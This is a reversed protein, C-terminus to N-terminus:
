RLSFSRDNHLPIYMAYFEVCHLIYSYIKGLQPNRWSPHFKERTGSDVYLAYMPIFNPSIWSEHSRTSITWNRSFHRKSISANAIRCQFALISMNVTLRTDPDLDTEEPLLNSLDQPAQRDGNYVLM